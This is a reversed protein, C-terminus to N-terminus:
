GGRPCVGGNQLLGSWVGSRIEGGGRRGRVSRGTVANSSTSLRSVPGRRKSALRGDALRIHPTCGIASWKTVMTTLSAMDVPCAWIATHSQAPESGICRTGPVSFSRRFDLFVQKCLVPGRHGNTTFSPWARKVITGPRRARMTQRARRSAAWGARTPFVLVLSRQLHPRQCPMWRLDEMMSGAVCPPGSAALRSCCLLWM